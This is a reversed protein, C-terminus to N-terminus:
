PTAPTTTPGPPATTPGPSATTPGSPTSTPGPPGNTGLLGISTFIGALFSKCIGFGDTTHLSYISFFVIVIFIVNFKM